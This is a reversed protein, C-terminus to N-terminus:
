QSESKPTTDNLCYVDRLTRVVYESAALKGRKKDVYDLIDAQRNVRKGHLTRRIIISKTKRKSKAV